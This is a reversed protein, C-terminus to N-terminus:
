GNRWGGGDGDDGAGVVGVVAAAASVVRWCTTKSPRRKTM